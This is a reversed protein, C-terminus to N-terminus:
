HSLFWRKPSSLLWGFATSLYNTGYNCGYSGSLNPQHVAQGSLGLYDWEYTVGDYTFKIRITASHSGHSTAKYRVNIDRYSGAGIWGAGNGNIFEFQSPNSGVLAMSNIYLSYSGSNAFRPTGTVAYNLWTMGMDFGYSGSTRPEQVVRGTLNFTDDIVNVTTYWAQIRLAPRRRAM